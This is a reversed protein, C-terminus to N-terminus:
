ARLPKLLSKWTVEGAVLYTSGGDRIDESRIEVHRRLAKKLLLERTDKKLFYREGADNQDEKTISRDV